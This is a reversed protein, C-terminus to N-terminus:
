LSPFFLIYAAVALWVPISDKLFVENRRFEDYSLQRQNELYTNPNKKQMSAYINIATFCVVFRSIGTSCSSCNKNISEM